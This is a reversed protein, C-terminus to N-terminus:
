ADVTFKGHGRTALLQKLHPQMRGGCLGGHDESCAFVEGLQLVAYRNGALWAGGRACRTMHHSRLFLWWGAEGYPSLLHLHMAQNQRRILCTAAQRVPAAAVEGQRFHTSVLTKACTHLNQVSLRQHTVVSM